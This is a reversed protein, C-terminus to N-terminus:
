NSGNELAKKVIEKRLWVEPLEIIKAQSPSVGFLKALNQSVKESSTILCSHGDKLSIVNVLWDPGFKDLASKTVDAHALVYQGDWIALQGFVNPLLDSTHGTKTDNAIATALDNKIGKECATFYNQAFALENVEANKALKQYASKDRATTIKAQFNLTNDLIAMMLLEAIPKSMQSLKDAAQYKEYILTAVAGIPEITTKVSTNQWYTEHGPHHDIVEIVKTRDVIPDFYDPDSLDLIIFRQSSFQEARSTALKSLEEQFGVVSSYDYDLILGINRAYPPISKNMKASSVAYVDEQGQLKLLERYALISAYADIDIYEKGSTIITM